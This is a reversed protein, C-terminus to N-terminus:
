VVKKVEDEKTEQLARTVRDYILFFNVFTIWGSVRLGVEPEIGFSLLIMFTGIIHILTFGFTFGLM